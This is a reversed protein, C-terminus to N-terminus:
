KEWLAKLLTEDAIILKDGINILKNTEADSRLELVHRAFVVPTRPVPEVRSPHAPMHPIVEVVRMDSDLFYIHLEMYTDPMWFQRFDMKNQPFLMAQEKPWKDKTLHSLGNQQDEKTQAVILDIKKGNVLTLETKKLTDGQCSMFFSLCILQLTFFLGHFPLNKLFKPSNAM